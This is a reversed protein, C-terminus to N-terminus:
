NIMGTIAAIILLAVVIWYFLGMSPQREKDVYKLSHIDASRPNDGPEEKNYDIDDFKTRTNNEDAVPSVAALLLAITIGMFLGPLWYFGYIDSGLTEVLTGAALSGLFIIIYFSWFTQWPGRIKFPVYFIFTIILGIILSIFVQFFIM